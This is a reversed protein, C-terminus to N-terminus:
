LSRKIERVTYCEIVDGIWTRTIRSLWAANRGPKCKKVEDKFRKISSSKM